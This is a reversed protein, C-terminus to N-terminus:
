PACTTGEVPWAGDLLFRDVASVVCSSASASYATHQFATVTLLRSNSLQGNLAQAWAFPTAPDGTSGVVLIPGSGAATVAAPQRVADVPWGACAATGDAWFSGLLSSGALYRANDTAIDAASTRRPYDLCMIAAFAETSNDSYSGDSNRSNFADLLKFASAATGSKVDSLLTSLTARYQANYMCDLVAQLMNQTGLIRGDANTLPAAQLGNILAVLQAAAEDASGSLPCSSSRLCDDIYARIAGDFGVMQGASLDTITLTPDEAGDLVFRNVRGPFLDAYEAGLLTGYSFGLYNITSEGLASRLIDIDRASSETDVHAFLAGSLRECDAAFQATRANAAAVYEASGMAGPVVGYLYTDKAANSDFCRVASSDGVGRPDFGVIDFNDILDTSFMYTMNKLVYSYGSGGPGGPNFFLVGKSPKTARHITIAITLPDGSDPHAYDMPVSVKGCSFHGDGCPQWSPSQAYFTELGAPTNATSAAATASSAQETAISTCGALGAITLLSAVLLGGRRLRGVALWSM